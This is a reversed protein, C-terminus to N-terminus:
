NNKWADENLWPKDNIWYGNGFCSRIAQYVLRKGYYIEMIPTPESSLGRYIEIIEHGKLIIM